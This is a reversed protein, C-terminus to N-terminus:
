SSKGTSFVSVHWPHISQLIKRCGEDPYDHLINRPYYARVGQIPQPEFFDHPLAEIGSEKFGELPNVTALRVVHAQDQLIVRGPLNPCRKRFAIPQHGVTGGVDVFLPTDADTDQAFDEQDFAIVDLFGPLGDRQVVMFDAVVKSLEPHSRLWRYAPKDTQRAVNWTCFTADISDAYGTQRLFQPTALYALGSVESFFKVAATGVPCALNRTINNPGYHDPGLQTVMGQSQYCRLLRRMLGLDIFTIKALGESNMVQGPHECLTKFIGKEIGIHAMAAQLPTNGIRFATDHPAGMAMALESAAKALRRVVSEDEPLIGNRSDEVAAEIEEFLHRCGKSHQPDM